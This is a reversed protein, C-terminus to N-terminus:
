KTLTFSDVVKTTEGTGLLFDDLAEHNGKYAQGTLTKGIFSLIVHSKSPGDFSVATFDSTGNGYSKQSYFGGSVIYITGKGPEVVQGGRLPKSRAPFEGSIGHYRLERGM